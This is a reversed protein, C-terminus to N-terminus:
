HTNWNKYSVSTDFIIESHISTGIVYESWNGYCQELYDLYGSPVPIEFMEFPLYVVSTFYERPWVYIEKKLPLKFLLAVRKTPINQYKKCEAEYLRYYKKYNIIGELFNCYVFHIIAEPIRKLINRSKRYRLGYRLCRKTQRYYKTIRKLFIDLQEDDDPLSDIPFIDIFIGQNYPLDLGLESKIIGTTSSNRLQAHGRASGEDTNETQFFYPDKFEKEAISCLKEYQARMMMLDIDDDWPIYGKHRVAGLVTGGAAYYVINYKRCVRMFEALLDLEVAWLKKIDTSVTYGSRIEEDLFHDPLSIKIPLNEITM